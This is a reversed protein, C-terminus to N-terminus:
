VGKTKILQQAEAILKNAVAEANVKFTGKAIANKLEEVKKEDFANSAAYDKSLAKLKESLPSLKVPSSPAVSKEATVAKGRESAAKATTDFQAANAFGSLKSISM